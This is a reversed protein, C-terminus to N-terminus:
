LAKVGGRAHMAALTRGHTRYAEVEEGPTQKAVDPCTEFAPDQLVDLGDERAQEALQALHVTRTLHVDCLVDPEQPVVDISPDVSQCLFHTM